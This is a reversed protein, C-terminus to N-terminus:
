RDRERGVYITIDQYLTYHSLNIADFFATQDPPQDGNSFFSDYDVATGQLEFVILLTYQGNWASGGLVHRLADSKSKFFQLAPQGNFQNTRYTPIGSGSVETVNAGNGSKDQWCAVDQGDGTIATTCTEDSFLTSTVAADLWLKIGSDIGAPGDAYAPSPLLLATPGHSFRGTQSRGPRRFVQIM